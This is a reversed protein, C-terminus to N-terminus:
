QLLLAPVIRKEEASQFLLPKVNTIQVVDLLHQMDKRIAQPDPRGLAAELALRRIKQVATMTGKRRLHSDTFYLFYDTGKEVALHHHIPNYQSYEFSEFGDVVIEKPPKTNKMVWIHFLFCHRAM